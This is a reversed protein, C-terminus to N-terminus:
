QSLTKSSILKDKSSKNSRDIKNKSTILKKPTINKSNSENLNDRIPLKIDKNKSKIECIKTIENKLILMVKYFRLEKTPNKM